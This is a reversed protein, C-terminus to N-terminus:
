PLIPTSTSQPMQEVRSQDAGEQVYIQEEDPIQNQNRPTQPPTKLSRLHSPAPTKEGRLLFSIHNKRHSPNSSIPPLYILLSSEEGRAKRAVISCKGGQNYSKYMIIWPNLTIRPHHYSATDINWNDTYFLTDSHRFLLRFAELRM